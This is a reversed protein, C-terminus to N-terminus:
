GLQCRLLGRSGLPASGDQVQSAPHVWVGAVFAVTFAAFAFASWPEARKQTLLIQVAVVVFGVILTTKTDIASGATAQQQIRNNFEDNILELVREREDLAPGSM